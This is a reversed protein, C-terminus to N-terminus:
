PTTTVDGFPVPAFECLLEVADAYSRIQRALPTEVFRTTPVTSHQQTEAELFLLIDRLPATRRSRLRCRLANNDEM